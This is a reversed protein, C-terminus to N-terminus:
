EGKSGAAGERVPLGSPSQQEGASRFPKPQALVDHPKVMDPALDLVHARLDVTLASFDSLKL